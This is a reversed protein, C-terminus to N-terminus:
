TAAILDFPARESHSRGEALLLREPHLLCLSEYKRDLLGAHLDM